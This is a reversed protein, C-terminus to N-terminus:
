IPTILVPHIYWFVKDLAVLAEARTAFGQPRFTDDPYGKMLRYEVATAIDSKAWSSIDAADLFGPAPADSGATNLNALRCLLVAVEERTIWQEPRVTNDKYGILYGAATAKAVERYFWDSASVDPFSVEQQEQFGLINNTHYYNLRTHLQRAFSGDTDKSVGEILWYGIQTEAM